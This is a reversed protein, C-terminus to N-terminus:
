GAGGRRKRAAAGLKGFAQRQKGAREKEADLQPARSGGAMRAAQEAVTAHEFMEAMTLTAGFESKLRHNLRVLLLSHGGLEFFNDDVGLGDIGLLEQWVALIRAEHEDRAAVHPTPLSPRPALGASADPANAPEGGAPSASAAEGGAATAAPQAAGTEVGVAIRPALDRTSIWVHGGGAAVARRFVEVGEDTRLGHRLVDARAAALEDPVASEATMGVEAWADWGITTVPCDGPVAALADQVANAGCYDAAGVAGLLSTLSSCLVFLELPQGATAARLAISGRVKADLVAAAAAPERLELLGGRASGAAHVVGRLPGMADVVEAVAREVQAPDGADAHWVQVRAGTAELALLREVRRREPDGTPRKACIAEFEGRAPLPSRILLAIRSDGLRALHMAISAGIGGLGGTILFAGGPREWALAEPAALPSPVAVLARWDRHRRALIPEEGRGLVALVAASQEAGAGAPLDLLRAHITPHEQRLGRVIGVATARAPGLVPEGAVSFLGDTLVTLAFSGAAADQLGAQVLALPAYFARREADEEGALSWLHVFHLPAGDHGLADLLRRWDERSDPRVAFRQEGHRTFDGGAEVEVVTAGADRLGGALTAALDASGSGGIGDTLLVWRAAPLATAAIPMARWAASYFWRAPDAHREVSAARPAPDVWYRQREFPYTPLRVTRRRAEGQVAQWDIAAGHAWLQGVAEQLVEVDDAGGDAPHRMSAVVQRRGATLQAATLSQLTRGPGVELLLLEEDALLKAVASAFRVPARLQEAWYSPQAFTDAETWDGTMSSVCPLGARGRGVAAVEAMFPEVIPQMMASHFAHSTHLRRCGVDAAGLATSLADVVENPGSVVCSEPANVAALSLGGFEPRQLWAGVSAEDAAIGLMGGEPLADMMAGRAAVLALADELSLVGALCAAVFEGVSHGLMAAPQVGFAMWQRALAYQVAFLAPQAWKTRRLRATAREVDADYLVATLDEGLPGALIKACHELHQRFEPEHAYLRAAMGAHQAGQGPFLFAVRRAAEAGEGRVGAGDRLARVAGGADAAVVARRYRMAMRGRALTHAVDALVTGADAELHDALQAARRELAAPSRASLPLLQVARAPPESAPAPPAQELIVHANTGGLGFSSVAARRPGEAVPWSQLRDVVFFPSGAFDIEPNPRRFHLTPPLEGHELALVAKILGAVGAAANSHGINTKLSGIGCFGRDDTQRRYAQTLAGVEVPDGLATGTGHAEVYGIGRAPVRAVELAAEICRAQGDVGPATFGVRASGDNNTASGRLVARICDGDEIADALRKLVVVALGNAGVMGRADADFARCHGDPSYVGGEEYCYGTDRLTTISVGGALAADCEGALLSQGALHVAVLGTSCATQVNVSPGHLDLAYSVRLPLFDRDTGITTPVIGASETVARNELLNHLLYNPRGAGAFVGVLGVRAPDCGADELAEVAAELFLRHQPDTIQAERPAFGFFGADFQDIGDILGGGCKVYGPAALEAASVGASLLEEESFFRVSERGSRLNDWLEIDNAAGPLRLAMGVIAIEDGHYSDLSDTM